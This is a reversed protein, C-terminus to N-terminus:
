ATYVVTNNIKLSSLYALSGIGLITEDISEGQANKLVFSTFTEEGIVENIDASLQLKNIKSNSVSYNLVVLNPRKSDLKQILTEKIQSNFETSTLGNIEVSFGVYNPKLLQVRANMPRRNHANDESGEISKAVALMQGSGTFEVFQGNNWKPFPNPTLSGSPNRNLGSGDAILYLSIIGDSIVYPLADVIGGVETAWLYYDIASGGQAKNKFRYLVRKRYTEVEEDKTGEIKIEEVTATSPIGDLPNAINLVTGVPINGVEGSTMCEVTTIITGNETNVQSVTKYTLGSKLDKYITGSMLYSATVDDLRVSLNASQGYIYDVGILSGWLKLVFLECTQPFCQKYIWVALQWISAAVGAISYGISKIFSKELLPSSDGYKTRLVSYKAMFSDFIEKITKTTFNAM